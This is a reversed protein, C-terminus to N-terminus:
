VVKVIGGSSLTLRHVSGYVSLHVLRGSCFFYFRVSFTCDHLLLLVVTVSGVWKFNLRVVSDMGVCIIIAIVCAFEFYSM